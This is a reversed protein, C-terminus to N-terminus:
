AMATSAVTKLLELDRVSSQTEAFDQMPLQIQLAAATKVAVAMWQCQSGQMAETTVEGWQRSLWSGAPGMNTFDVTSVRVRSWTM